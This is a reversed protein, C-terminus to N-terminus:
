KIVFADYVCCTDSIATKACCFHRDKVALYKRIFISPRSTGRGRNKQHGEKERLRVNDGFDNSGIDLTRIDIDTNSNNYMDFVIRARGDDYLYVKKVFTKFLQAQIKKDHIDAGDFSNMWELIKDREVVPMEAKKLAIQGEIKSRDTELTELREKTTATIIGSEIADVINNIKKKVESLESQLRKIEDKNSHANQFEIVTDAVWHIVDDQLIYKQVAAAVKTEIEDRRVNKKHCRNIEEKKGVCAYYCHLEGSKSTGSLGMMLKGCEGCYLKGSLLYDGNERHRGQPNPKNELKEKVALFVEKEIIAPIGNETRIKDFIYTGIYRENKLMSQFSRSTWQRNLRTKILRENLSDAIDTFTDGQLTRNFIERVVEAEFPNIEYYGDKTAKFGYPVPGNVKCKEANDTMGRKVDEAMNEIYFQNVNMMTRLAFRGAANNGFEEKAYCVRVGLKEMENEFNLANIMNRAIRNSKYAIIVAFKGKKADNKMRQFQTRNETKGSIAADSYIDIVTYGNSAAYLKCESVQQEISEEKQNHSSFRAYIVASTPSAALQPQKKRM